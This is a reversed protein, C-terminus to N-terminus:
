ALYHHTPQTIVGVVSGERYAKTTDRRTAMNKTEVKRALSFAKELSKPEFLRVEHQIGEKLTRM